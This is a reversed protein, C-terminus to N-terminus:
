ASVLRKQKVMDGQLRILGEHIGYRGWKDKTHKQNAGNTFNLRGALSISFKLYEACVILEPNHALLLSNKSIGSNNKWPDLTWIM